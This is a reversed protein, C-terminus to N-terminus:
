LGMIAHILPVLFFCLVGLWALSVRASAAVNFAALGVFIVALLYLIIDIM